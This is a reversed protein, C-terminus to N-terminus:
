GELVIFALASGASHTISLHTQRVGLEAARAFAAGHLRLSPARGQVGVVEVENWAIGRGWGSGVAKFFAEKVAFRAAYSQAPLSASECYDVEGPAFLRARARAPHRALVREVRAIEVLDIGIGVIM